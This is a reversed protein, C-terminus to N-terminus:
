KILYKYTLTGSHNQSQNEIFLKFMYEGTSNAEYCIELSWVADEKLYNDEGLTTDRVYYFKYLPSPNDDYYSSLSSDGKINCYFTDKGSAYIKSLGFRGEYNNQFYSLYTEANTTLVNVDNCPQSFAYGNSFWSTDTSIAGSCGTPATLGDLGVKALESELFWTSSDHSDTSGYIIEEEGCSVLGLCSALLFLSLIKKM